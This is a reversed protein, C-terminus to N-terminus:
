GGQIIGNIASEPIRKAKLIQSEILKLRRKLRLKKALLKLREVQSDIKEIENKM